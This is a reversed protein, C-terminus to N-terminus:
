LISVLRQTDTGLGYLHADYPLSPPFVFPWLESIIDELPKPLDWPYQFTGCYALLTPVFVDQFQPSIEDPLM